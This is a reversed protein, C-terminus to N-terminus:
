GVPSPAPRAPGDGLGAMMEDAVTLLMRAETGEASARVQELLGRARAREGRLVLARACSIRAEALEIPVSQGELLTLAERMRAAAREDGEAAEVLGRSLLSGARAFADEEPVVEAATAVVERAEALNGQLVLVEALYRSAEVLLWGGLVNALPLAPRVWGAARDLDGRTLAFRGLALLNQIQFYRDATRELWDAARTALREAEQPQGLYYKVYALLYAARADDRYSGTQTALEVCRELHEEADGLRGATALVTGMRLHGEIRLVLDDMGEATSLGLRLDDLAADVEGEFDARIEASEYATRVQLRPDDVELAIAAAETVYGRAETARGLKQAVNALGVLAQGRLDLRGLSIAEDAVRDLLVTAEQSLGLATLTRSRRLRLDTAAEGPDEGVLDLARAYFRDAEATGERREAKEAARALAQAAPWIPATPGGPGLDRALKCASDFHYAVIEILDDESGPLGSVWGACREHLESRTRKPLRNYAVDRILAHKFAFEVEEAITSTPLARVLDRVELRGLVEGVGDDGGRLHGVLGSWFVLGVVSALQTLWRDETPLLDLRSDILGHISSPVPVGAGDEIDVGGAELMGADSLMGVTEELFLPNGAASRLVGALSQPGLVHGPVLTAILSESEESTLAQLVIRQSGGEESARPWSDAIEPRCSGLLLIPGTANEAEHDLLDLLTPEGWHLDEFVLVLPREQAMLEFLRRIGWHLEGQTITTTRYTGRPTTPVGVLTALATAITRLEGQDATRLGEILSGLKASTASPDDDHLIGASAKIMEIVPWYTIGEGYPLCRGRLVTGTGNVGQMFEGLLRTKGIGPPGLVLALAPSRSGRVESWLEHMMQLEAARGVLPVSGVPRAEPLPPVDIVEWVPVPEAKGKALVADRAKCEVARRIALYTKEGVYISEAPAAGMLRAATNTTDGMATYDRADDPGILGAMAEGTNIGVHLRLPGPGAEVAAVRQRMAAAARVAREPDDEHSVPAGFIAMIADGMVTSVTGGFRRVEESMLEACHGALAKVAEPDMGESMSTFGALDAFLVTVLRREEESPAPTLRTGVAADAGEARAPEEL